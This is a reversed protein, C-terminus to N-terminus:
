IYRLFKTKLKNATLNKYIKMNNTRKKKDQSVSFFILTAGCTLPGAAASVQVRAHPVHAASSADKDRKSHTEDTVLRNGYEYPFRCALQNKSGRERKRRREAESARSWHNFHYVSTYWPKSRIGPNRSIAKRLRHLDDRRQRTKLRALLRCPDRMILLLYKRLWTENVRCIHIYIRIYFFICTLSYSSYLPIFIFINYLSLYSTSLNKPYREM